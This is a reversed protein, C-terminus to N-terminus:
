CPLGGPTCRCRRVFLYYATNKRLWANVCPLILALVPQATRIMQSPSTKGLSGARDGTRSAGLTPGAPKQSMQGVIEGDDLDGLETPEAAVGCDVGILVRAVVARHVHIIILVQMDIVRPMNLLQLM